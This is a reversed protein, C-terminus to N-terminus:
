DDLDGTHVEALFAIWSAPGVALTPGNPDKSDRVGVIGPLNRAIEVCGNNNNSRTSKRWAAGTLDHM